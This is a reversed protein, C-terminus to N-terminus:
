ASHKLWVLTTVISFRPRSKQNALNSPKTAGLIGLFLADPQKQMAAAAIDAAKAEPHNRTTVCLYGGEKLHEWAKALAPVYSRASWNTFALPVPEGPLREVDLRPPAVFALDFEGSLAADEFAEAVVLHRTARGFDRILGEYGLTLLRNPGFGVYFANLCLAAVLREGWGAFCDLIRASEPHPLLFRALCVALAPPFVGVEPAVQKWRSRLVKRLAALVKTRPAGAPLGPSVERWIAERNGRRGWWALPSPYNGVRARIKQEEQYLEVLATTELYSRCLRFSRYGAIERGGPCPRRFLPPSAMLEENFTGPLLAFPGSDCPLGKAIALFLPQAAALKDDRALGDPNQRQPASAGSCPASAGSCPAAAAAAFNLGATPSREHESDGAPEPRGAGKDEPGVFYHFYPFAGGVVFERRVEEMKEGFPKAEGYENAPPAAATQGRL